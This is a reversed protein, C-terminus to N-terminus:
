PIDSGQIGLYIERSRRLEAELSEVRANLEDLETAVHELLIDVEDIDYCKRALSFCQNNIDTSTLAM